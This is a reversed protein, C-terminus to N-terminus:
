MQRGSNWVVRPSLVRRVLGESGEMLDLDGAKQATQWGRGNIEVRRDMCIEVFGMM